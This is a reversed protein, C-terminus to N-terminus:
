LFDNVLYPYTYYKNKKLFPTDTSDMKKLTSIFVYIFIYIKM